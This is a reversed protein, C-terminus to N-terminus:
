VKYREGTIRSWANVVTEENWGWGEGLNQIIEDCIWSVCMRRTNLIRQEPNRRNVSTCYPVSLDPMNLDSSINTSISEATIMTTSSSKSLQGTKLSESVLSLSAITPSDKSFLEQPTSARFLDTIHIPDTGIALSALFPNNGEPHQSELISSKTRKRKTKIIANEIENKQNENDKNYNNSNDSNNNPNVGGTKGNRRGRKGSSYFFSPNLAPDNMKEQNNENDTDGGVNLIEEEVEGEEQEEDKEEEEEEEENIMGGVLNLDDLSYPPVKHEFSSRRSHNRSHSRSYGIVDVYDSEPDIVDDDHLSGLLTVHNPPTSVPRSISSETMDLETEEQAAWKELESASPRLLALKSFTKIGDEIIMTKMSIPKPTYIYQESKPQPQEQKEENEETQKQQQQEQKEKEEDKSQGINIKSQLNNEIEIIRDLEMQYKEMNFITETGIDNPIM